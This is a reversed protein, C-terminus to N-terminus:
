SAPLVRPASVDNPLVTMSMSALIRQARDYSSAKERAVEVERVLRDMVPAYKDGHQQVMMAANFLAAELEQLSPEAM